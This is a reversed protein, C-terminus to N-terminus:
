PEPRDVSRQVSRHAIEHVNYVDRQLLRVLSRTRDLEKAFREFYKPNSEGELRPLVREALSKEQHAENRETM